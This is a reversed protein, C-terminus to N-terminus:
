GWARCAFTLAQKVGAPPIIFIADHDDKPMKGAKVKASIERARREIIRQDTPSVSLLACATEYKEPRKRHFLQEYLRKLWASTNPQPKPM